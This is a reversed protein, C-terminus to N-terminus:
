QLQGRPRTHLMGEACEVAQLASVRLNDCAAFIWYGNGSGDVRVSALIDPAGAINANSPSEDEAGSLQVHPGELAKALKELSTEETTRVFLAATYGHFIAAQTLLLAPAALRNGAIQRFHRLIRAEVEALPPHAGAVSHAMVNFAIQTGFVATPLTQLSLLNVTQDHLEDLGPRGYESAPHSLVATALQVPAAKQVRALLLALMTAAPHAVVAPVSQLGPQHPRGLEREVWPARLVSETNNELSYTLDVIESGADRVIPWVKAAYDDAATLFTFDVGSLEDPTTAQIFTPEDNVQDLQGTAAEDDLLKVDLAPFTREGLVDRVEKGKLTSAGVIAVKFLNTSRAASSM